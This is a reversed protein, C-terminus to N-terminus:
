TGNVKKGNVTGVEFIQRRTSLAVVCVTNPRTSPWFSLTMNGEPRVYGLWTGLFNISEPFQSYQSSWSRRFKQLREESSNIQERLQNDLKILINKPVSERSSDNHWDDSVIQWHNKEKHFLVDSGNNGVGYSVVAYNEVIVINRIVFSNENSRFIRAVSQPLLELMENIDSSNQNQKELDQSNQKLFNANSDLIPQTSGPIAAALFATSLGLSILWSFQRGIGQRYHQQRM